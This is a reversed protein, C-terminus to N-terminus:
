CVYCQMRQEVEHCVDLVEQKAPNNDPYLFISPPVAGDADAEAYILRRGISSELV